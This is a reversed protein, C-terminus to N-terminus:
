ARPPATALAQRIADLVERAKIPKTLYGNFGAALAAEIEEPMANASIALVPTAATEPDARLAALIEHGVMDGLHMDCLILAPCCERALRLGQTGNEATQLAAEPFRALLREILLRSFRDDEIYLLRTGPPCLPAATLTQAAHAPTPTAPQASPLDIWFRSGVNPQSQVGVDGHMMRALKRTLALGIGAGEIKHRHEGFRSFPEFLGAQSTEDIGIGTDNVRLRQYEGHHEFELWVRGAPRNYKIGNSLLNSLMQKLRLRDARVWIPGSPPLSLLTVAHDEALPRVLDICEGALAALDVAELRLEMKGAEIRAMDLLDNILDLLHRGATRIAEVAERSGQPAEDALLEAFGLIANLPTRLEHSMQSLFETKARSAALAADRAAALERAQRIRESVDNFSFVRGLVENGMTQPRSRCEITRGDKLELADFTEDDRAEILERLRRMGASPQTLQRVLHRFIRWDQGSLLTAQPLRWLKAFRRNFHMIRGSLDTTLISEATSELTARLLSTTRELAKEIALVPRLDQARILLRDCGDIRVRRISKRVPQTEGDARVYLGDVQELEDIQGLSVNNWYFVDALACELETIDRGILAQPPWGLLQEAYPNAALVTLRVPDVLLLLEQSAALLEATYDRAPAPPTNM